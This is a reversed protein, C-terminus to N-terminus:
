LKLANVQESKAAAEDRLRAAEAQKEELQQKSRNHEETLDLNQKQKEQLSFKFEELQRRAAAM